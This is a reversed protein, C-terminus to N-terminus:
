NLITSADVGLLAALALLTNRCEPEDRHAAYYAAIAAECDARDSSNAPLKAGLDFADHKGEKVQNNEDLMTTRLGYGLAHSNMFTEVTDEATGPLAGVQGEKTFLHKNASNEKATLALSLAQNLAKAEKEYQEDTLDNENGMYHFTSAILEASTGAYKESVYKKMTEPTAYVEIAGASQPNINQILEVMEEDSVQEGKGLKTVVDMGKSVATMTQTYDVDGETAKQAMQTATAMDMDASERVMESQLVATFLNATKESGFSETQQLSDLITGVTGAVEDLEMKSDHNMEKQLSSVSSFVSAIAQAEKEITASNIKETAQETDVLLDKLTVKKTQMTEASKLSVTANLSDQSLKQTIQIAEVAKWSESDQDLMAGYTNKLIETAKATLAEGEAEEIQALQKQANALVAAGSNTLESETKGEYVTGAFRDKPKKEALPKSDDEETDVTETSVNVAYIEFFAQVDEATIEDKESNVILDEVMSVAVLEIVDGHMDTMGADDLSKKLDASLQATRESEPLDSAYNVADSIDEMLDGYVEEVDASIGLSTALARMGMNTIEPILAKMSENKGLETVLSAVLGDASLASMLRDTDSFKAFVGNEALTSVMKAVTRFDAQLAPINRADQHLIRLLTDFFPDFLATMEGFTPKKLGLFENGSMWKQTADYIIEGAITPLLNSDEFSDAVAAFILAENHGYQKFNTKGLKVANCAFSTIAKTESVFDVNTQGIEFDIMAHTIAKGGMARYVKLTGSNLPDVWPEIVNEQINEEVSPSMVDAAALEHTVAPAIEWVVSIPILVVTIVALGQVFGWIIARLWGMRAYVSHERLSGSCVISVILYAVWTLFCLLLFIVLAFVPIVLSAICNLLVDNLTPSVGLAEVIIETNAFSQIVPIVSENLVNESVLAGRLLIATVISVVACALVMIGRIRSKAIGRFFSSLVCVAMVIVIFGILLLNAM